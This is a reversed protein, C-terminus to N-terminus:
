EGEKKREDVLEDIQREAQDVGLGEVLYKVQEELGGNNANAAISSALDHVLDDLDEPQSGAAKVKDALRKAAAAHDAVAQLSWKGSVGTTKCADWNRGATAEDLDFETEYEECADEEPADPNETTALLRALAFKRAM